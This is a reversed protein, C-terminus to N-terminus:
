LGRVSPFGVIATTLAGYIAGGIHGWHGIDKQWFTLLFNIVIMVMFTQARRRFYESEPHLQSLVIFVTFLGFGATSAGASVADQQLAFSFISGGIASILFILLYRVHGIIRELEYGVFYLCLMNLFLHQFGIHIFTSSLLRWWQNFYVMPYNFVAGASILAESQTTTGYKAMMWVFVGISGAVTLYTVWPSEDIGRLAKM